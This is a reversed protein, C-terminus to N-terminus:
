GWHASTKPFSSTIFIQLIGAPVLIQFCLGMKVAPTILVLTITCHQLGDPKRESNMMHLARWPDM